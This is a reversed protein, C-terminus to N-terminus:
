DVSTTGFAFDLLSENRELEKELFLPFRAVIFIVTRVVGGTIAMPM